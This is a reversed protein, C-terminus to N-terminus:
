FANVTWSLPPLADNFNKSFIENLLSAKDTNSSAETAGNKLTPVQNSTKEFIQNNELITQERSKGDEEPSKEGEVNQDM